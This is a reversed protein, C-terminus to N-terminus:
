WCCNNVSSRNYSYKKRIRIFFCEYCNIKENFGASKFSYTLMKNSIQKSELFEVVDSLLNITSDQLDERRGVLYHRVENM